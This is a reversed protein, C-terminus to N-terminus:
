PIRYQSGQKIGGIDQCLFDGYKSLVNLRMCYTSGDDLMVYYLVRADGLTAGMRWGGEKAVSYEIKKSACYYRSPTDFRMECGAPPRIDLEGLDLTFTGNEAKYAQEADYLKRTVLRAELFKAKEVSKQYQPLAVAALTGVILMVVLLEILTFANKRKYYM